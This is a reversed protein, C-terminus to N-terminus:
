RIVHNRASYCNVLFLSFIGLAPIGMELMCFTATLIGLLKCRPDWRHILSDGPLYHFSLRPAM